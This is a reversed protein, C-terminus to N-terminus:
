SKQTLQKQFYDNIKQMAVDYLFPFSRKAWYAMKIDLSTFILYDKDEIGKLIAQAAQAPSVAHKQFLSKLQQMQKDSIQTGIIKITQVLGTDVAGPCVVHVHINHRKLDYKLVESLGRLGFKSASYAGHWPLGFLGAASSVNVIHGSRQRIMQPSFHELVHMPGKLNVDILLNWEKYTMQDVAGWSSIGAINLIIDVSEHRSHIDESWQQVASADSIDLKRYDLVKGGKSTIENVTQTLAEENVDTLFLQAGKEALLIATDKGIGSAAGTVLCKKNQFYYGSM